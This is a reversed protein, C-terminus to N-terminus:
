IFYIGRLVLSGESLIGYPHVEGVFPQAEKERLERNDRRKTILHYILM